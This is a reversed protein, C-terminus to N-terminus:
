HRGPAQLQEVRAGRQAVAGGPQEDSQGVPNKRALLELGAKIGMLPHRMEHILGPGLLEAQKHLEDADVATV